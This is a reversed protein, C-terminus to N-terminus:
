RLRAKYLLPVIPLISPGRRPNNQQVMEQLMRPTIKEDENKYENFVEKRKEFTEETM